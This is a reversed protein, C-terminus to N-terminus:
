QDNKRKQFLVIVQDDNINFDKRRLLATESLRSGACFMLCLGFALEWNELM